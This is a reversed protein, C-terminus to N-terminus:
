TSYFLRFGSNCGGSDAALGMRAAIRYRYCYSIHCLFSGGKMLKQNEARAAANRSKASRRASRIHFPEATWEWVNGVMDYLGAENPAFAGLPSTGAWGDAATNGNPFQGQFINAPLVDNDDPEQEGWPFRRDDEKGGRAAHEWEPESPLRGGAWTAFAQADVWAVHTVPHNARDEVHSRPGEPAHWCAGEVIAWWPLAHGPRACSQDRLLPRFVTSWGFREAVTVYATAAVFAAFRANSVPHADVAFPAIRHQRRVAEGDEPLVPSRTGTQVRGGQFAVPEPASADAIDIVYAPLSRRRSQLDARRVLSADCCAM